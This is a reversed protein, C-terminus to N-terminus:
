RVFHSDLAIRLEHVLPEILQAAKAAEAASSRIGFSAVKQIAILLRDADRIFGTLRPSKQRKVALVKRNQLAWVLAFELFDRPRMVKGSPHHM